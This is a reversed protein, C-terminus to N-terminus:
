KGKICSINEKAWKSLVKACSLMVLPQFHTILEGYRIENPYKSAGVSEANLLTGVTGNTTNPVVEESLLRSASFPKSNGIGTGTLECCCIDKVLGSLDHSRKKLEKVSFGAKELLAKLSIECSLLSLYLVARGVEDSPNKETVFSDAAEILREGFEISYKMTSKRQHMVNLKVPHSQLTASFAQTRTLRITIYGGAKSHELLARAEQAM